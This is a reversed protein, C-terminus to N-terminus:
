RSEREPISSPGARGRGGTRMMRVVVLLLMCVGVLLLSLAIALSVSSHMAEFIGLPMTQTVGRRNGAFLLTAGFEGLSRSLAISAGAMLGPAAMPLVIRRAVQTPTMGLSRAVLIRDEGISRFSETVVLLYFPAAVVVQALVVAGATFPMTIGLSELVGGLFGNRGFTLLLAFGLVSPPIVLPVFALFEVGRVARGKATALWWALPTGLVVILLLSLLATKLSVLLGERFRPDRVADLLDTPAVAALLGLLPLALILVLVLGLGGALFLVGRGQLPEMM